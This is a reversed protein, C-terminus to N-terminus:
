HVAARAFEAFREPSLPRSFLYGQIEDCGLSRLCDMQDASEVGEAITRVSLGRALSIIAGVMARARPDDAVGAFFSPDIKLKDFSKLCALSSHGTGFDDMSLRVGCAHLGAIAAEGVSDDSAVSETLELELHAPPIGAEAVIAAVMGTLDPHRFQAASLNVAVSMSAMGDDLWAKLQGVATRLVWEGIQVIMGSSEAIPIFEAPSIAGLQPHQWRALAEVGVIRGTLLSRQPQYHLHMENRELAHRLGDELLLLRAARAQIEATHFCFANRGGQKARYMAADAAGALADFDAGDAPYVAIGISASISLQHSEIAHPLHALDLLRQAVHAAGAADIGPLLLVFEDGGLRALTDHARLASRFRTAISVLLQDGVRHGLSDNIKKFHDLDLFMLAMASGGRHAMQLAQTARDLLLTRNPLATLPDYHALQRISAEAEKRQTIDKFSAVFHSVEGGADVIRGISLWQPYLSGNKRRNWVEGQWRGSHEIEGWMDRFFALDHRGSGLLRPNRGLAEAESYGCITTFARNVKVINCRADTIIFGESSQDFLHAALQLQVDADWRATVDRIVAVAQTAVGDGDFVPTVSMENRFASGDKRFHLLEGHFPKASGIADRVPFLAESPSGNGLLMDLSRGTMDAPTYGSITEFASNAYTPRGNRDVIVVGQSIAALAKDRSRLTALGDRLEEETRCQDDIVKQLAQRAQAAVGNLKRETLDTVVMCIADPLGDLALLRVSVIVPVRLGTMTLLDLEARRLVRTGQALLAALVPKAEPAFCPELRSGIVRSLPRGLLEAFHRNAYVVVGEPTLTIAGEGMEEVLVRYARDAGDLTFWRDGDSGSVSLADMEGSRIARLTEELQLVKHRLLANERGVDDACAHRGTEPAPQLEITDM